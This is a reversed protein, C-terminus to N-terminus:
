SDSEVFKTADVFRSAGIWADFGELLTTVTVHKEKGPDVVLIARVLVLLAM